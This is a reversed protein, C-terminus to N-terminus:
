KNFMIKESNFMRTLVFVGVGTFTINAAVTILMHAINTEFSFIRMMSQVSNYIPILYLIPNQATSGFMGTLGILMSAIMLPTVYTGAEKVTKAYASIISIITILVLVTSLIIVALMLYDTVGYVSGNITVTDGMLKPLSLVIGLTSSAGSILAMISLALIKGIAIHSRKAPTVLLSAITGREKEGSISEPAVAMCGSFLLMVLLMPMIMSFIMATFDEEAALDYVGDGLNIDFKNAMMSEYADLMAVMTQYAMSSNSSSSNYYIEVNPISTGNAISDDFNEPFVLLLDIGGNSVTEKCTEISDKDLDGIKIESMLCITEISDPLAVARIEPVYEEDPMFASSMAGGMLSYIVYLLIGPLVLAVLTRRDKFFRALEKKFVTFIVNNKM